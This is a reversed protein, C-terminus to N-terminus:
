VLLHVKIKELSRQLHIGLALVIETGRQVGNALYKPVECLTHRIPLANTLNSSVNQSDVIIPFGGDEPLSLFICHSGVDAPQKSILFHIFLSHIWRITYIIRITSAESLWM